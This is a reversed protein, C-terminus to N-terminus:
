VRSQIWYMSVATNKRVVQLCLLEKCPFDATYCTIHVNLCNERDAQRGWYSRWRSINTKVRAHLESLVHSTDKDAFMNGQRNSNDVFGIMSLLVGNSGDPNSYTAAYAKTDYCQYLVSSLFCWIMPSNGSGQGTGYIPSEEAHVYSTDSLGMETRIHYSANQLTRANTLAVQRQVGHQQSTLAALNPVVRDYCATADYYNLQLFVKRSARSAEFQLEEWMVPDRANRRPRSGFQGDHLQNQMEAQYLAARWKIGLVM